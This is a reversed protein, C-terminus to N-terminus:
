GPLHTTLARPAISITQVSASAPHLSSLHLPSGALSSTVSCGPDDSASLLTVMTLTLKLSAPPLSRLLVKLGPSTLSPASLRKVM